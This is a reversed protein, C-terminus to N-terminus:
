RLGVWLTFRMVTIFGLQEYVPRGSDSALLAAPLHPATNVAADTVRLGIGRGRFTPRTSVAEIAVVRDSAFAGATAVPQDGLYANILKWGSAAAKDTFLRPQSGYPLLADAPYAETVTQDFDLVQAPSAAEVIRADDVIRAGDTPRDGNPRPPRVMLPPHGALQFKNRRLDGLPWPTFLLFPGGSSAEYFRRVRAIAEAAAADDLPRSAHAVNGFFCVSAADGMSLGLEDDVASRGGAQEALARYAAGDAIVFDNLLNDGAPTSPSTGDELTPDLATTTSM